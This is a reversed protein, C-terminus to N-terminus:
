SDDLRARFIQWTSFSFLLRFTFVLPRLDFIPSFVWKLTTRPAHRGSFVFLMLFFVCVAVLGFVISFLCVQIVRMRKGFVCRALSAACGGCSVRQCM